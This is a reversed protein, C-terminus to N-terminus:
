RQRFPLTHKLIIDENHYTTLNNLGRHLVTNTLLQTTNESDAIRHLNELVAVDSPWNSIWFSPPLSDDYYQAFDSLVALGIRQEALGAEVAAHINPDIKNSRIHHRAYEALLLYVLGHTDRVRDNLYKEDAACLEFFKEPDEDWLVYKDFM